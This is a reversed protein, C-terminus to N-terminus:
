IYLGTNIRADDHPQLARNFDEVLCPMRALDVLWGIGFLGCTLFYAVAWGYRRLYLNHLGLFGLPFAFM